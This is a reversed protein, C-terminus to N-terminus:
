KGFLKKAIHSKLSKADFRTSNEIDTVVRFGKIREEKHEPFIAISNLFEPIEDAGLFQIKSLQKKSLEKQARTEIERLHKDNKSTMVVTQAQHELCKKLNKIEYDITNTVSIEFAISADDRKLVVDIKGGSETPEELTAIFGRDQGLKKILTQLQYHERVEKVENERALIQEKQEKSITEHAITEKPIIPKEVPASEIPKTNDKPKQHNKQPLYEVLAENIQAKSFAYNDRSQQIIYQAIKKTEEDSKSTEIPFTTLNFDNSRKLVKCLAEGRALELFDPLEFDSFTSAIRRADKDNLRFFIQLASNALFTDLTNTDFNSLQQTVACLSLRYKRTSNLLMKIASSNETYLHAEDCFLRIYHHEQLPQSQRALAIRTIQSILLEALFQSNSLGILGVSLSVLITKKQAILDDFNIGDRHMFINRLLRTQLFSDIRVLLPNLEHRKIHPFEEQWYYTLFPDDDLQEIYQARFAPELLFKKIDLVSAPKQSYVLTSITKQLVAEIRDGSSIFANRFSSALDSALVAKETESEGQFINFGFAYEPNGFDIYIINDREEESADSLIDNVLSGHPDLVIVAENKSQSILQRMLHSKGSGSAGAILAHQGFIERDIYVPTQTNQHANYGLLFDGQYTIEPSGKSHKTVPHLKSSHVSRNPYHVFTALEKTNMIMGLRNTQRFLLNGLHADYEYGENSLPILSNYESKSIVSLNRSMQTILSRSRQDNAGQAAARIVVSFLSSSIKEKACPLMEPSNTFFSGGAGDSVSYMIDKALPSSVGKFMVQFTLTENEELSDFVSIISTLPDLSYSNAQQIPRMFEESYGFDVIAIEQDFDFSFDYADGREIRLLPFYSTLLSKLRNEDDRTCIFRISLTEATGFIEFTIPSESYALLSLLEQTILSSIEFDNPLNLVLSNLSKRTLQYKPEIEVLPEEKQEEVSPPLFLNSLQTFLSPARGDDESYDVKSIFKYFPIYPPELDIAEDFHYWGRGRSEWTYFDVTSQEQPTM